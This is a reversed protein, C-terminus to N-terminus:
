CFRISVVRKHQGSVMIADDINTTGQRYMTKQQEPARFRLEKDGPRVPAEVSNPLRSRLPVLNWGGRPSQTAEGTNIM